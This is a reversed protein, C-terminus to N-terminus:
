EYRAQSSFAKNAKAYQLFETFINEPKNFDSNFIKKPYKWQIRRLVLNQMRFCKLLIEEFLEWWKQKNFNGMIMGFDDACQIM